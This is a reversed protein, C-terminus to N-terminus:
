SDWDDQALAPSVIIAFIWSILLSLAFRAFNYWFPRTSAGDALIYIVLYLGLAMIVALSMKGLGHKGLSINEKRAFIEQGFVMKIIGRRCLAVPLLAFANLGIVGDALFDVSLATIFAVILSFTTGYKIPMFLVMVPLFALMVSFPLRLYNCLLIQLITLLIYTVWFKNRRM